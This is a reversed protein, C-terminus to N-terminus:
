NHVGLSCLRSKCVAVTPQMTCHACQQLKDRLATAKAHLRLASSAPVPLYSDRACLKVILKLNKSHMCIACISM